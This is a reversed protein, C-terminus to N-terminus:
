RLHAGIYGVHIKKSGGSTDDYFHLRPAPARGSGIRVHAGMFVEGADCVSYPVPFMRTRHLKDSTLVPDAEVPAYRAKSIPSTAEPWDLYAGFAQVPAGDAKAQAYCELSELVKWAKGIWQREYRHGALGAATTQIDGLVIHPLLEGAMSVLDGWSDLEVEDDPDSEEFAQGREALMRRAYALARVKQDLEAQVVDAQDRAADRDRLALDALKALRDQSLQVRLADVQAEAAERAERQARAEADAETARREADAARLEAERVKQKWDPDSEVRQQPLALQQESWRGELEENTLPPHSRMAEVQLRMADTMPVPQRWARALEGKLMELTSMMSGPQLAAVAMDPGSPQIVLAGEKPLPPYAMGKLAVNVDGLGSADVMVQFVRGYSSKPLMRAVPMLPRRVSGLMGVQTKPNSHALLTIAWPQRSMAQLLSYWEDTTTSASFVNFTMPDLTHLVPDMWPRVSKPLLLQAPSTWEEQWPRDACATLTWRMPLGATHQALSPDPAGNATRWVDQEAVLRARIVAGDGADWIAELIWHAAEDDIVNVHHLSGQEVLTRAHTRIDPYVSSSPLTGEAYWFTDPLAGQDTPPLRRAHTTM